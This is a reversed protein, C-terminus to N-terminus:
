PRPPQTRKLKRLEESLEGVQRILQVKDENLASRDKRLGQILDQLQAEQKDRTIDKSSYEKKLQDLQQLLNAKDDNLERLRNTLDTNDQRLDGIVGQLSAEQQDRTSEKALHEQKLEDIEQKFDAKEEMLGRMTDKLVLRDQRFGRIHDQLEAEQKDRRAEKALHDRKLEGIQQSLDAKDEKLGQIKGMLDAKAQQLERIADKLEKKQQNRTLEKASHDKKLENLERLLETKDEELGQLTDRLVNKDQRLGELVDKLEEEQKDRMFEKSAHDRELEDIQHLLEAQDEELVQLTDTLVKKDEEFGKIVDQLEAEKQDRTMEKAMHENKLEDMKRLIEEKDDSVGQLTDAVITKDRQLDQIIDQLDAEKLERVLEKASHDRKLEEIQKLLDAKDEELGQLTTILSDREVRIGRIVDQLEEEQQDRAKEKASHDKGLEDIERLLEAQDEKLRQLTETLDTKDQELGHIIDLLEDEHQDRSMEKALHETKLEDMQRVIDDKDDSVGQLTDKVVTKDRKLDQIIDRLEAETKERMMEKASHDRKLEDIQKLLDAKDAELGQLIKNLSDREEGLRRIVEQLEEEKESHDSKLKDFQQLLEAHDKKRRQLTDSLAAKDQQLGQIIEKLEKEQQDSRMEKSSLYRKLQDNEQLLDDKDKGLSQLKDALATKDQELERIMAQMAKVSADRKLIENEARLAAVIQELESSHKERHNLEDTQEKHLDDTQQHLIGLTDTLMSSEDVLNMAREKVPDLDYLRTNIHNSKDNSIGITRIISALRDQVGFKFALIDNRLTQLDRPRVGESNQSEVSLHAQIYRSRVLKLVRKYDQLESDQHMRKQLSFPWGSDRRRGCTSCKCVYKFLHCLTKVSPILNFPPPLTGVPRLYSAWVAARHFKWETDANEETLNYTNSLMGILANLLVVVAFILYCVFLFTGVTEAVSHKGTLELGRPGVFGYLAWYLDKVSVFFTSFGVLLQCSGPEEGQQICARMVSQGASYFNQFLGIAFAFWIILFIGCFKLIDGMMEGLSIRLHGVTDSVLLLNLLRLVSVTIAVGFLTRAVVLPEYQDHEITEQLSLPLIDLGQITSNRLRCDNSLVEMIDDNVGALTTDNLRGRLSDTAEMVQNRLNPLTNNLTKDLKIVDPSTEVRGTWHLCFVVVCLAIIVIEHLNMNDSLYKNRGYRRFIKFHSWALGVIWILIFWYLVEVSRPYSHRDLANIVVIFVLFTFGSGAKMMMMVYPLRAFTVVRRVPVFLYLLCIIPYGLVVLFTLLVQYWIGRENWDLLNRYFQVIIAKQSHPHAIFEKQEYDIAEFLKALPHQKGDVDRYKDTDHYRFLALIEETSASEGLLGGAFVELGRAMKVYEPGFDEWTNSLTKLKASMQFAHGFIDTQTALIYAPQSIARYIHLTSLAQTLTVDAGYSLSPETISSGLELLVKVAEFNNKQAALVLPTIVPHFDDNDSHGNLISELIDEREQIYCCISKTAVGCEVDIARILADGLPIDYKLLANIIDIYGDTIADAYLTLNEESRWDRLWGEEKFEGLLDDLRRGNGTGAMERVQEYRAAEESYEAEVPCPSSVDGDFSTVAVAAPKSIATGNHLYLDFEKLLRELQIREYPEM